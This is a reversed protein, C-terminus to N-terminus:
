KSFLTDYKGTALVSDFRGAIQAVLVTDNAPPKMSVLVYGPGASHAVNVVNSGVQVPSEYADPDAALREGKFEAVIFAVLADRLSDTGKELRYSRDGAADVSLQGHYPLPVFSRREVLRDVGDAGRKWEFHHALWSPDLAELDGYRMRSGDVPLAYTHNGIFDTVLIAPAEPSHGIYGFAAFSHEDPSVGLPPVSSENSSASDPAFRHVTLNRTDIVANGLVYLGPLTYTTRDIQGRVVSRGRAARFRADDSTLPAGQESRLEDIFQVRAQNNTASLLYWYGVNGLPDAHVLFAPRPGALLAVDDIRDFRTIGSSDESTAGEVVVPQGGLRLDFLAVAASISSGDVQMDFFSSAKTDVEWAGITETRIPQSVPQVRYRYTYRNIAPAGARATPLWDSWELNRRGPFAPLPVLFAEHHTESSDDLSVVLLRSGRSTFVSVAGPAVWRGDVLHADEKWLPGRESARVTHSFMPISHLTLSAHGPESAPSRAQDAPWRVEVALFLPEGGIEPPVDALLRFVGGSLAATGVVIAVSRGLAKLFGPNAGGAVVRAVILGFVTGAVLCILAIMLVYFGSEGERSSISYWETCAAAVLGGALMAVIGTLLASFLSAPWSM